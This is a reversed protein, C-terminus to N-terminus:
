TSKFHEWGKREVIVRKGDIEMYVKKESIVEGVEILQAGINELVERAKEFMNPKVTVVLEYEEGGYLSLSVPDLGYKEAFLKAEPAIPIKKILFGVKGTESLEYLSWALGDSSDISSTLGGLGALALGEKLRAKPFLVSEILPKKIYDPPSLGELLIRLGASTKGFYGTVALIDGPKAGSRRVVRKEECLGIMMCDIILDSAENTDGGIINIGYETAGDNLGLGIEEVDRETLNSPLGISILAALPKVGKAAFDSVCMVIAKRAAQRFSMSPPVDTKGVLMDAKMIILKGSDLRIAAVDDGFPIPMDHMSGLKGVIIKIIEREGLDKISRMSRVGTDWFETM